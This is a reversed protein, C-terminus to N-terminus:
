EKAASNLVLVLELCRKEDSVLSFPWLNQTRLSLLNNMHKKALFTPVYQPQSVATIRCYLVFGSV